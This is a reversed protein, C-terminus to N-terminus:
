ESQQYGVFSEVTVKSQSAPGVGIPGSMGSYNGPVTVRDEGNVSIVVNEKSFRLILNQMANTELAGLGKFGRGTGSIPDHFRLENKNREWNFIVRGKEGFYIRINSSDTMARIQIEFPANYDDSSQIQSSANPSTLVLQHDVEEVQIEGHERYRGGIGVIVEKRGTPEKQGPRVLQPLSGSKLEAVEKRAPELQAMAEKAQDLKGAQTLIKTLEELKSIYNELLGIEKAAISSGLPKLEAHYIAILDDLASFGTASGPPSFRNRFGSIEEQVKLLNELDGKAQTDTELRKLAAEYKAHLEEAEKRAEARLVDTEFQLKKWQSATEPPSMARTTGSGDPSTSSTTEDRPSAEERAPYEIVFGDIDERAGDRVYLKPPEGRYIIMRTDENVPGRVGLKEQLFAAGNIWHWENRRNSPNRVTHGGLWLSLDSRHSTFSLVFDREEVTELCALHGGRREAFSKADAWNLKASDPVGDAPTALEYWHGNFPVASEPIGSPRTQAALWTPLGIAAILLLLNLRTQTGM